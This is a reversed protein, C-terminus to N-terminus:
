TLLTLLEDASKVAMLQERLEKAGEFGNIYIKCFKNLTHLKRENNKWTKVFLQAHKKYLTMKQEQSYSQWPSVPAFAFPDNFIGRGIMIGDLKQEKALKEGHSRSIVDGNGVILTDPSLTDRLSRVKAIAQWDAPVKSLQKATRGHITLMQLKHGLLFQHWTYDIDNLGLRTKVSLPVAGGIGEKTAQIIETALTRNNILAICSGNKIVSKEPCGFNLDVGDFGMAVLQKATKYFNEPQQGWIQAIIPKEKKSFRLKPLLKDRGVSQLGDVNVFETMMLDPRACNIVIQRFVTDTVDDMPALVFFPKNNVGPKM